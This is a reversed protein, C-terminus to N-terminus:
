VWVREGGRGWRDGRREGAGEVERQIPKTEAVNLYSCTEGM